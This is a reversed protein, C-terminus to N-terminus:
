RLAPLRNQRLLRELLRDIDARCAKRVDVGPDSGPSRALRLVLDFPPLRERIQRFAERALRKLLNRQVARRALKKAIVLGLRSERQQLLFVPIEPSAVSASGSDPGPAVAEFVQCDLYHLDFYKGRIVRRAAFVKSFEAAAHLRHKGRFCLNGPNVANRDGTRSDSDAFPHRGGATDLM